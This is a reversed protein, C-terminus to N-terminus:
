FLDDDEDKTNFDGQELYDKYWKCKSDYGCLSSCFFSNRKIDCPSYAMEDDGYIQYKHIMKKIYDLTEDINEQSFEYEQVYPKVSIINDAPEYKRWEMVYDKIAGSKLEKTVVCYKLMIWALKKINYGEAQKALGYLVLQRGAEVLHNKDFKSSTKWDYISVTGDKHHQLLDIYGQMWVKDDIQYLILQETEFEGKPTKFADAFMTMNKIWNERISESPFDIGLMDLNVLERDIAKRIVSTDAGDKICSELADHIHGGLIAWANPKSQEREIYNLYAQYPCQAMTNLRSISYIECGEDILKQLEPAVKRTAM